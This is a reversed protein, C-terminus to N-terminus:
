EVQRHADRDDVFAPRGAGRTARPIQLPPQFVDVGDTIKWLFWEARVLLQLLQPYELGIYDVQM